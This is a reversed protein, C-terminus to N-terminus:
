SPASRSARSQLGPSNQRLFATACSATLTPLAETYALRWHRQGCTFTRSAPQGGERRPGRVPQGSPGPRSPRRGQGLGVSVAQHRPPRARGTHRREYRSPRSWAPANALRSGKLWVSLTSLPAGRVEAIQAPDHAATTALSDRETAAAAQATAAVSWDQDVVRDILLRRSKPCTRANGHLQTRTRGPSIPKLM